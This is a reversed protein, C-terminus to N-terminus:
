TARETRPRALIVYHMFEADPFLRLFARRLLTRFPGSTWRRWTPPATPSWDHQWVSNARGVLEVEYGADEFLSQVTEFAFFRVHTRDLVGSEVYQWRGRVLGLSVPAYQVNPIAALVRGDDALYAHCARLVQWPDVLHELVDNFCVLEFREATPMAQPFYGEVIDDFGHQRARAASTSVAEVGVLRADPGLVRRLTDGFGGGGCGVDLASTVGAPIFPQVDTRPNTEYVDQQQPDSM